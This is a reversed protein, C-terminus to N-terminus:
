FYLPLTHLLLIEPTAAIAGFIIVADVIGSSTVHKKNM